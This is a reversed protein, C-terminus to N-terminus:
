GGVRDYTGYGTNKILKQKKLQQIIYGSQWNEGGHGAKVMGDKLQSVTFSKDLGAIIQRASEILSVRNKGKVKNKNGAKRGRRETKLGDPLEIGLSAFKQQFSPVIRARLLELKSDLEIRQLNLREFEQVETYFDTTTNGVQPKETNSSTNM